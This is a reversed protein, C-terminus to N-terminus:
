SIIQACVFQMRKNLTDGVQANDVTIVINSGPTFHTFPLNLTIFENKQIEGTANRVFTYYNNTSAPTTITPVFVIRQTNGYEFIAWPLRNAINADTTLQLSLVDIYGSKRAPIPVVVPGAAINLAQILNLTSRDAPYSLRFPDVPYNLSQMKTTWGSVIPRIFNGNTISSGKFLNISILNVGPQNKLDTQQVSVSLIKATTLRLISNYTTNKIQVTYKETIFRIENNAMLLIVTVIYSLNDEPGTYTIDLFDNDSVQIANNNTETFNM